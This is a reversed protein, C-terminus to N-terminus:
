ARCGIPLKLLLLVFARAAAALRVSSLPFSPTSLPFAFM